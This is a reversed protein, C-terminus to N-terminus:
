KSAIRPPWSSGNTQVEAISGEGGSPSGLQFRLLTLRRFGEEVLIEGFYISGFGPIKVSNGTIVAGKPGKGEWELSSVVTGYIIGDSEPIRRKRSSLWGGTKQTFFFPACRSRFSKNKEFVRALKEKTAYETFIECHTTIKLGIGDVRVGKFEASLSHFEPPNRRDSSASMKAELADIEVLRDGNTMKLGTLGAQASTATPLDNEGHNGHSYEAAKNGGVFDGSVSTSARGYSLLDGFSASESEAKGVGGTVPLCTSAVSPIFFDEPRRIHGALAVANAHFFFRKEVVRKKM